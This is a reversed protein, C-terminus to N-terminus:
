LNSEDLLSTDEYAFPIREFKQISHITFINEISNENNKVFPLLPKAELNYIGLQIISDCYSEARGMKSTGTYIEANLYLKAM